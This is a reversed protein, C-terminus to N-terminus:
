KHEEMFEPLEWKDYCNGLYKGNEYVNMGVVSGDRNDEDWFPHITVVRGEDPFELNFDVGVSMEYGNDYFDDITMTELM